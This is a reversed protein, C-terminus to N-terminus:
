AAVLCTTCSAPGPQVLEHASDLNNYTHRCSGLNELPASRANLCQLPSPAGHRVRGSVRQIQLRTSGTPRGCPILVRTCSRQQQQQQQVPSQWQQQEGVSMCLAHDTGPQPAPQFRSLLAEPWHHLLRPPHPEWVSRAIHKSATCEKRNRLPQTCPQNSIASQSVLTETREGSSESMSSVHAYNRISIM